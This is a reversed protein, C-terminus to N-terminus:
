SLSKHMALVPSLIERLSRRAKHLQSKSTGVAVGLMDGIEKHNFGEVDHLVFVTRYRDPLKQIAKELHPKLAASGSNEFSKAPIRRTVEPADRSVLKRWRNAKKLHNLCLNTTIRYLWSSLAAEGRFDGMKQFAKIFTQQTLDEAAQSDNAMRFAINFVKENYKQYFQFQAQREGRQCAAILEAEINKAELTKDAVANQM